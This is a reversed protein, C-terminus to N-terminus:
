DKTTQPLSIGLTRGKRLLPLHCRYDGAISISNSNNGCDNGYAHTATDVRYQHQRGRQQQHDIKGVIADWMQPSAARGM